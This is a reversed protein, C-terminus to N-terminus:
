GGKLRFIRLPRLSLENERQVAKTSCRSNHRLPLAGAKDSKHHHFGQVQKPMKLFLIQQYLLVSCFLDEQEKAEQKSQSEQEQVQQRNPQVQQKPSLKLREYLIPLLLEQSTTRFFM